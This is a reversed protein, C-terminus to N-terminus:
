VFEQKLTRIKPKALSGPVSSQRGLLGGAGAGQGRAGLRKVTRLKFDSKLSELASKLSVKM